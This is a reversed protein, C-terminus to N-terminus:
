IRTVDIAFSIKQFYYLLPRPVFFVFLPKFILLYGYWPIGMMRFGRYRLFVEDFRFKFKQKNFDKKDKKYKLLPTDVNAIKVNKAVMRMWLDYDELFFANPDYVGSIELVSKRFMVSPHFLCSGWAWDMKRPASKLKVVGWINMESDALYVQSGIVGVDSNNKLYDLQVELRNPLCFDDGDMRAVFEGKTISICRNLTKPHGLNKENRLVVIREDQKALELMLDWSKDNSGDDCMVIEFNKYSQALLSDVARQLTTENNYVGMIVSIKPAILNNLM